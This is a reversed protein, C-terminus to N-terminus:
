ASKKKKKVTAIFKSKDIIIESYGDQLISKYDTSKM